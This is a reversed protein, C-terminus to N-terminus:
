WGMGYGIFLLGYFIAFLCIGGIISEIWDRM